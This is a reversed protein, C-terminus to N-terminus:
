PEPGSRVTAVSEPATLARYDERGLTHARFFRPGPTLGALRRMADDTPQYLVIASGSGTISAEAAVTRAAVLLTGMEPRVGLIAPELDNPGFFRGSSEIELRDPLARGAGRLRHAAYVEATAIGFAPVFLLLDARPVDVRPVVIEGRGTVDAEGGASFFPVDSGLEGGLESLERASMEAEWLRALLVLAVAVDASGGGLGAGAPIRKELRMRAGAATGLRSALLQAARVVLNGEGSPISGDDCSFAMRGLSRDVTIRDALDVSAFRSRIEHFGDPRVAGIRLERNIKAPALATLAM